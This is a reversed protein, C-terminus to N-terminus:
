GTTYHYCLLNQDKRNLNSDQRPLWRKPDWDVRSLGRGGCRDVWVGVDASRDRLHPLAGGRETMGDTENWPM